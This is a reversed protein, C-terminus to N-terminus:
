QQQSFKSSQKSTDELEFGLMMGNYQNLLANLAGITKNTSNRTLSGTITKALGMLKDAKFLFSMKHPALISRQVKATFRFNARSILTIEQTEKNLTYTGQTTRKSNKITYTSDRNFTFVSHEDIGIKQMLETIKDEVKASALEGGAKSLFNDSQFKCDPKIYVWNGDMSLVNGKEAAKEAAKEGISNAVGSLITKWDQAYLEVGPMMAMMLMIVIRTVTKKM